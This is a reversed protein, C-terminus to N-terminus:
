VHHRHLVPLDHAAILQLSRDFPNVHHEEDRQLQHFEKGLGRVFDLHAGGKRIVVHGPEATRVQIFAVPDDELIIIDNVIRQGFLVPESHLADTVIGFQRVPLHFGDELFLPFREEYRYRAIEEEIVMYGQLDVQFVSLTRSLPLLDRRQLRIDTDHVGYESTHGALIELVGDPVVLAISRFGDPEFHGKRVIARKIVQIIQGKLVM